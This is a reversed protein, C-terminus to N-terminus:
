VGNPERRRAPPRARKREWRRRAALVPTAGAVGLAFPAADVVPDAVARFSRQFTEPLPLGGVRSPPWVILIARGVVSDTPVTGKGPLDMHYRSDGSVERHDGMVWLRGEPVTVDFPDKSPRNGPYLYPEDLPVGNVTVRGQPDCCRVRDGGVAIVRKILDKEGAPPLLGIFVLVRKGYTLLPNAPKPDPQDPLWGGPDRFVIVQGREVPRGLKHDLKSVLVRDGVLLTNAMSDSPIYFVQVLFTKILLALVLAVGALLPM